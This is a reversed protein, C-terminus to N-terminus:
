PMIMQYCDDYNTLREWTKSCSNNIYSKSFCINTAKVEKTPHPLGLEETGGLPPNNLEGQRPPVPPQNERQHVPSTYPHHHHRHGRREPVSSSRYCLIIIQMDVM